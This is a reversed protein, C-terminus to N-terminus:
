RRTLVKSLDEKACLRKLIDDEKKAMRRKEPPTEDNFGFLHLIGHIVYRCIEDEFKTKFIKSNRRAADLSIFIEGFFKEIGFEPGDLGFSLVDTASNKGKFRRNLGRIAKDDLFVFELEAGKNKKLCKLIGFVIKKVFAKNIKYKKNQNIVGVRDKLRIEM